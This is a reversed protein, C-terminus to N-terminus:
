AGGNLAHIVEAVNAEIDCRGAERRFAPGMDGAEMAASLVPRYDLGALAALRWYCPNVYSRHFFEVVRAGPRCFVLNALGAGHPAVVERAQAFANIQEAWSLTELRLKQFGRAELRPWLAGENIVRRRAAGERTIYLREGHMSTVSTARRLPATFEALLELVRPTPEGPRCVLGPVILQGCEYHTHRGVRVVRNGWAGLAFAEDMFPEGGHAILAPREDPALALLRPLEEILWHAYRAGLNVAVVAVPGDIRVPPRIQTCTQLWHRDPPSGFDPSVDRAISSGDPALVMGAGYVRGGPLTAILGPEPEATKLGAFYRLVEDTAETPLAYDRAGALPNRAAGATLEGGFRAVMAALSECRAPPPLYIHAGM